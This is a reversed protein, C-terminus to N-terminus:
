AADAHVHERVIWVRILHKDTVQRVMTLLPFELLEETFKSLHHLNADVGLAHGLRFVKRLVALLAHRIEAKHNKLVFLCGRLAEGVFGDMEGVSM